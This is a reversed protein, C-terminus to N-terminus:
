ESHEAFVNSKSFQHSADLREFSNATFDFRLLCVGAPNRRTFVQRQVGGAARGQLVRFFFRRAMASRLRLGAVQEGADQLLLLRQGRSQEPLM